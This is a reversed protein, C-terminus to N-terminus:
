TKSLSLNSLGRFISHSRRKHRCYRQWVALSLTQEVAQHHNPDCRAVLSGVQETSLSAIDDVSFVPLGSGLFLQATSPMVVICGMYLAHWIEHCDFGHLPAVVVAHRGYRTMRQAWPLARDQDSELWPERLRETLPLAHRRLEQWEREQEGPPRSPDYALGVPVSVIRDDNNHTSLWARVLRHGLITDRMTSTISPRHHAAHDTLLIFPRKQTPLVTEVYEALQEIHVRTLHAGILAQPHMLTPKAAARASVWTRIRAKLNPAPREAFPSHYSNRVLADYHTLVYDRSPRLFDNHDPGIDSDYGDYLFLPVRSLLPGVFSADRHLAGGFLVMESPVSMTTLDICDGRLHTDLLVRMARREIRYAAASAYTVGDTKVYREHGSFLTDLQHPLAAVCLQAIGYQEPLSSMLCDWGSPWRACLDFTVDDEFILAHPAGDTYAQQIALLHSATVAAEIPTIARGIVPSPEQSWRVRQELQQTDRADIAEVRTGTLGQAALRQLMRLRREHSRALNIFYCPLAHAGFTMFRGVLSDDM